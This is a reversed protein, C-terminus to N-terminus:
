PKAPMLTPQYWDYAWFNYPMQELKWQGNQNIL